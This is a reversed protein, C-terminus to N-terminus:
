KNNMLMNYHKEQRKFEQMSLNTHLGEALQKNLEEMSENMRQISSRLDSNDTSVNVVPPEQPSTSGSVMRLDDATLSGVTNNRQAQDILDLMPRIEPNNVAEHNAVFEGEHVVGAEKRYRKGGTYGGEYYGSNISAVQAEYQKNITAIQIAGMATTVAALIGGMIPGYDAFGKAIGLATNILTTAINIGRESEAQKLKIAKIEKSKKEELRKQEEENGEAADILKKYKAETTAVEAQAEAAALNSMASMMGMVSSLATTGAKAYVKWAEGGAKKLEEDFNKLISFASAIGATVEDAYRLGTDYDEGQKEEKKEEGNNYKKRIEALAREKEETTIIKDEYLKEMFTIEADMLEKNTGKLFEKRFEAVKQEYAQQQEYSHHLQQERREKDLANWEESDKVYCDRRKELFAQDLEFLAEKKQEETMVTNELVFRATEYEQKAEDESMKRKDGEWKLKAITKENLTNKYDASDKKYISLLRDFSEQEAKHRKELYDSYLIEGKMYSIQLAALEENAIQKSRAVNDRTHDSSSSNSSTSAGDSSGDGSGKDRNDAVTPIDTKRIEDNLKQIAQQNERIKANVDDLHSKAANRERVNDGSGGFASGQLVGLNGNNGGINKNYKDREKNFKAKADDREQELKRKKRYAEELEEQAAKMKIQQELSQLYQDIAKKNDKVLDGEKTLQGLYGPVIKKLEDLAAKRQTYSMNVDRVRDHLMRLHSAEKNMQENTSEKIRQMTRETETVKSQARFYDWLAASAVGIITAFVGWPNAKMVANLAIIAKKCANIAITVKEIILAKLAAANWAVLAITAAIITARASVLVDLLINLGKVLLSTGSITYKVIPLLKEGLAISVELFQKKAKDIGAQVTNNQVNFEDLVSTGDKFAKEAINQATKVDDLHTALTSLVGVCRSGSLGMEDFMPALADFGGKKQMSELFQLIAANADKKLLTTFEKVDKGALKAFKVPDKFMATIMQSMATASTEQQQMNQDLVSAYGMIATQAIGAQTAAGGLRAEFEVIYGAAASSSQALENVASGTALMAGRLGMTDSDGFTDALKGIDRVASEGLDDGLAVNIKDAADVFELINKKGTIGLRGADGALANLKERPTRTDMVKLEENMEHVEESAMGTYKQVDAMAEEMDAYNQVAKRITVTLGTVVGIIQTFAGWNRNLGDFMRQLWGQQANGEARLEALRTRIQSLQEAKQRFEETNPALHKIQSNLAKAAKALQQISADSLRNLIGSVDSTQMKFQSVAKEAKKWEKELKKGLEKDGAALAKDRAVRTDDAIKQLKKLEEEAKKGNLEVTTIYTQERTAM